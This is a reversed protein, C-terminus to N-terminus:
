SVVQVIQLVQHLYQSHHSSCPVQCLPLPRSPVRRCQNHSHNSPLRPPRRAVAHQLDAPHCPRHHPPLHMNPRCIPIQKRSNKAQIRRNLGPTEQRVRRQPRLSARVVVWLCLLCLVLRLVRPHRIGQVFPPFLFLGPLSPRPRRHLHRLNRAQPRHHLPLQSGAALFIHVLVPLPYSLFLHVLPPLLLLALVPLALLILRTEPHLSRLSTTTLRSLLRLYGQM